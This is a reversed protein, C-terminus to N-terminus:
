RAVARGRSRRVLIAVALALGIALAAGIGVVLGRSRHGLAGALADPSGSVVFGAWTRPPLDRRLLERKAAGLARGVAEGRAIRAYFASMLDVSTRDGVRWLTSVVARAGSHLFARALSQAGEGAVVQGLGTECASLVVLDAAMPLAYIESARLYGDQGQGEGLLLCSRLPFSTDVLAHTAFHLV